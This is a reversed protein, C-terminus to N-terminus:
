PKQSRGKLDNQAPQNWSMPGLFEMEAWRSTFDIGGKVKNAIEMASYWANVIMKQKTTNCNTYEVLKESQVVIPDAM